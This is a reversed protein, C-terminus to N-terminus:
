VPLTPFELIVNRLCLVLFVAAAELHNSACTTGTQAKRGFHLRGSVLSALLSDRRGGNRALRAGRIGTLDQRHIGKFNPKWDDRNLAVRRGLRIM